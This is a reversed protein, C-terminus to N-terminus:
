PTLGGSTFTHGTPLDPGDTRKLGFGFVEVGTRDGPVLTRLIESNITTQVKCYGSQVICCATPSSGQFDLDSVTCTGLSCRHTTARVRVIGCLTRGECGTNLGKAIIRIEFDGNARAGGAAKGHGSLYTANTFGCLEDMRVAPYCAPLAPSGTTVTNPNTCPQYATVLPAKITKARKPEDHNASATGAVVLTAALVVRMVHRLTLNM